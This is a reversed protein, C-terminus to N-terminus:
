AEEFSDTLSEEVLRKIIYIQGRGTVRTTWFTFTGSSSERTGETVEFYGRDIYRQYPETKGQIILGWGRLKQWLRHEGIQMGKSSALKAVERVLLSNQSAAIQKQFQEAGELRIKYEDITKNSLQLARAMIQEPSNWDNEVEIFYQRIQYAREGGSIMALHKALELKIAYDVKNHGGRGTQEGLFTLLSYDVNEQLGIRECQKKFWSTFDKKISLAQYLDRAGVTQEQKDNVSIRILENM